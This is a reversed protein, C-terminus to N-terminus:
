LLFIIKYKTDLFHQVREYVFNKFNKKEYLCGCFFIAYSKSTHTAQLNKQNCPLFALLSICVYLSGFHNKTSRNCCFISSKMILKRNYPLISHFSTTFLLKTFRLLTSNPEWVPSPFSSRQRVSFLGIHHNPTSLRPLSDLNDTVMLHRSQRVSFKNLKVM